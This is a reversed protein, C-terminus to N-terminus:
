GKTPDLVFKGGASKCESATMSMWGQGKCANQGKCASTATKCAGQGKCANVGACQGKASAGTATPTNACGTTAFITAAAVALTVGTLKRVASM